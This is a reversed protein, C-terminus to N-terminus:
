LLGMLATAGSGLGSLASSGLGSLASGGLTTGQGTGLQALGLGLGAAGLLGNTYVTGQTTGTQTTNHPLSGLISAFTSAQQDPIQYQNLYNQYGFMNQATQTNQAVGGANLLGSLDSANMGSLATGLGTLANVGGLQVGAGGIAANQNGQGAALATQLATNYGQQNLGADTSAMTMNGQNQQVADAVAQRTGGFAGQAALNNDEANIGQATNHQLQTNTANILNQTYPSSQGLLSSVQGNLGGATVQPAQFGTLANAAGQGGAAVGQGQGATSSAFGLAQLQQPTLGAPGQGTYASYQPLNAGANAAQQSYGTLWQPIANGQSTNQTVPQSKSV